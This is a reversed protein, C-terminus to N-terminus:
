YVVLTTPMRERCELLKINLQFKEKAEIQKLIEVEEDRIEIKVVDNGFQLNSEIYM